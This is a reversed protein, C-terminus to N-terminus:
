STCTIQPALAAGGALGTFLLSTVGPLPSSFFDRVVKLLGRKAMHM